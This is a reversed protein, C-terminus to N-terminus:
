AIRPTVGLRSGGVTSLVYRKMWKAGKYSSVMAGQNGRNYPLIHVFSVPVGLSCFFDLAIPNELWAYPIM